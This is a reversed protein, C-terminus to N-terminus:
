WVSVSSIVTCRPCTCVAAMVTGPPYHEAICIRHSSVTNSASTVAVPEVLLRRHSFDILGDLSRQFKGGELIVFENATGEIEEITGDVRQITKKM